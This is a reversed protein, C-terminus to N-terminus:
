FRKLLVGIAPHRNWKHGNCTVTVTALGQVLFYATHIPQPQLAYIPRALIM